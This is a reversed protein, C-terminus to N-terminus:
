NWRGISKEGLARENKKLSFELGHFKEMLVRGLQRDVIDSPVSQGNTIYSLPVKKESIISILNGVMSTEDLKTLVVSQYNFFEFQRLIERLDGSKTTSSLALHFQAKSGCAELTERMEGLHKFDKPSKGITDVLILDYNQHLKIYNQLDEFNSAMYVPIGMIDGYTEIQAQAGIRYSDITIICVRQEMRNNQGMARLAALKAITTTKGVGTPGILVQVEPSKPLGHNYQPISEYIWKAITQQVLSFNELDDLAFDRKLRDSIDRIFGHSFDNEQLIAEIKTISDHPSLERPAVMHEKIDKIDAMINTLTDNRGVLNIIDKKAKEDNSPRVPTSSFEKGDKALYGTCEVQTRSFLGLFGGVPIDKHTLIRAKDGYENFIKRRVEAFDKGRVTFYKSSM